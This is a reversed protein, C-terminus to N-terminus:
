AGQSDEVIVKMLSSGVMRKGPRLLGTKEITRM